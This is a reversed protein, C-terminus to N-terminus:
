KPEDLPSELPAVEFLTKWATCFTNVAIKCSAPGMSWEFYVEGEQGAAETHGKGRLRNWLKHGTKRQVKLHWAELESANGQLYVHAM